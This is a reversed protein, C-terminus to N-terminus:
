RSSPNLRKSQRRLNKEACSLHALNHQQGQLLLQNKPWKEHNTCINLQNSDDYKKSDRFDSEQGCKNDNTSEDKVGTVGSTGIDLKFMTNVDTIAGAQGTVNM